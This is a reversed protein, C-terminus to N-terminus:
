GSVHRAPQQEGEDEDGAHGREPDLEPRRAQQRGVEPGAEVHPTHQDAEDQEVEADAVHDAPAEGVAMRPLVEEELDRGDRREPDAEDRDDGVRDQEQALLAERREAGAQHQPRQQGHYGQERDRDDQEAADRRERDPEEQAVDLGAPLMRPVKRGTKQNM